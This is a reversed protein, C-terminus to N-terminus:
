FGPLVSLDAIGRPLDAIKKLLALRNKRIREDDVMVFVSDFFDELPKLLQTSADFFEDVEIDLYIKSKVSLFSSWLAREEETDFLAEDVEIDPDVDKGRVIRTPRCYAEIVKPFLVGKSLADMKYASKAALSPKNAREILVSRVVESSIGKDVLFQELRRVVFQHVNDVTSGDVKLPQIDATLQLAQKLDLDKNKEVLVQVLGYSIRRLGFPDNTSTPQCGAAFLGALSDLRDAISLVIGADTEPLIDGSYRPLTIEFVAEAIQESYGDRLAYHRGMIGSLSTFETVVATALDSMALSAADQVIQHTNEEIKLAASLKSVMSEVRMMKDLMTGLKEHFLIGKLQSRFESFRKRTDLGYFFKADEYRARLVAENGKKVVKEDIVGNAVAIFYPLLTGNEDTLAFYKQHKQMVMTLLDNPLELFSEKFKGLVPVPAEVLNAVENLLGEQIVVNGQVSKALANSQELIRKKREEIEINIGANRTQGAYSEATEVMFTASHTNRIGYSKNGSLIGAFTFPVVVDGYLALIWRIPRSFMVQSNWRMSKPFSIKAITNSLDESLVELAPRSSEKVQAYVYETKGDIKKYLSNLPVSYRRSFGEAAKTPNGEDDFAKSAPPGRFEVDNEAQRSCLNEVFVVLRRPTGFAQVEGHSLRQKDLLQLVSDKLQQSADVVDQPPIEETGIELVFLRSDDRVRKAAAEVLEKPCVLNVPESVLGLPYGLSERTKLWLQACQRALSRMRGFYRARETVGVFGRSDLINFTHSTKLLQDYAPIALGSALLSRSEEEFFDFHKKLHDVSAHELYYASMEKENEMFLEGYTIGDAYQIKKFHDVGQLLMLIRELGYTIEVSIPSLQVSGAQQFYTFQTIEMGDMWIEWGLGWAGLVPSEWNDEVFRIDHARVDIGIASLSGIFLDQSNGPDPKLIVQFQTHRQLRNPNEGYRSDDPRISPEVYAVNWPEPGLVRLYTLPNMTGAGVETNSCQMIACGVSAWYEQLRQIAQQFTLVSPNQPESNSDKSSHQPAASTSVASVSTGSFRRRLAADLHCHFRNSHFFSLQSPQPRLVSIVLPFALIAM